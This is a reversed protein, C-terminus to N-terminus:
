HWNGQYCHLVEHGVTRMEVRRPTVITCVNNEWFSCAESAAGFGGFGRRKSEENCVRGIDKADVYRWTITMTQHSNKAADFEREGRNDFSWQAQATTTVLCLVIALFRM